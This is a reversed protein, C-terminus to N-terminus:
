SPALFITPPMVPRVALDVLVLPAFFDPEVELRLVLEVAFLEDAFLEDAFPEVALPEPEDM